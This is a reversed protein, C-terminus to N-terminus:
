ETVTWINSQPHPPPLHHTVKGVASAPVPLRRPPSDGRHNQGCVRAGEVPRVSERERVTVTGLPQKTDVVILSLDFTVPLIAPTFYPQHTDDAGFMAVSM